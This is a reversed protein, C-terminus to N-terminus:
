KVPHFFLNLRYPSSTFFYLQGWKGGFNRKGGPFEWLGPYVEKDKPRQLLLVSQDKILVGAVVIFFFRSIKQKPIDIKDM